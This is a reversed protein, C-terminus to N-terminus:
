SIEVGCAKRVRAVTQKAIGRARKAGEKLVDVVYDMNESLEQRRQRADGFHEMFRAFVEKKVDGYGLGGARYREAMEKKEAEDAFLSFMAYVSCEEPEKPEELPTSDTIISMIRKRVDEKPDFICVTNDYSKSMKQGDIGPVTATSRLIRAEPVKLLGEGYTNNFRQALDRTVEVHQKQDQGVPVLDSDYILIDSAMLVPYAFLGHEPAMGQELKDKYAHCRELLGMPTITTLFWTLETVEPVDSQAFITARDPDLGLALYDAALDLTQRHMQEGDRISTLAHYNAMFFFCDHEDQLQLYQQIAGFYNGIHLRGSPQIGSLVRMM